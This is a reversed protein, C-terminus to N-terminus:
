WQLVRHLLRGIPHQLGLPRILRAQLRQLLREHRCHHPHALLAAIGAPGGGPVRQRRQGPRQQLRQHGGAQQHPALALPLRARHLHGVFRQQPHPRQQAAPQILGAIEQEAALLQLLIQGLPLRGGWGVFGSGEEAPQLQGPAPGPQGFPSVLEARLQPAEDLVALLTGHELPTDQQPSRCNGERPDGRRCAEGEQLQLPRPRGLRRLELGGM